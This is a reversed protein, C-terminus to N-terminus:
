PLRKFIWGGLPRVVFGPLKRWIRQYVGLKPNDPHFDPLKGKEGLLYQYHLPEPQFGMNKKFKAAGSDKRSRGFDFVKFGKRTAWEMLRWYMYNNAGRGERTSLAGSYYPMLCDGHIFSLVTAITQGDPRDVCHMVMKPGLNRELATLMSFPISPSGLEQKNAAFLSHFLKLDKREVFRFNGDDRAKRIEARAKRPILGLCAEPDEPLRKRFTVYRDSLTGGIDLEEKQRLELYRNRHSNSLDAARAALGRSAEVGEALIGGYVGFPMSVAVQGLFPSKVEFFPLVGLIKKGKEAVLVEGPHELVDEVMRRWSSTHFLTGQPHERVFRDLLLDEGPAAHRIIIPSEKEQGQDSSKLTVLAVEREGEVGELESPPANPVGSSLVRQVKYDRLNRARTFIIVEGVLGFGILQLGFTVLVVGMLFIPRDQISSGHFVKEYVPPVGLFLGLVILVLGLSGFFRIPKSTFRTLFTVALIDLLRRLYVGIGFFGTKGREELHRVSVETVRFGQREALIPLFRFQDGYIPIEELVERRMGRFTCNLDHLGNQSLRRLFWNFFRSQLRNLWPDIRPHRWSCVFDAQSKLLELFSGISTPDIQLYDPSTVIFRGQSHDRAAAFAISEGNGKGQLVLVRFVENSAELAECEELIGGGVGDLIFLVEGRVELTEMAKHYIKGLERVKASPDTVHVFISLDLSESKNEM